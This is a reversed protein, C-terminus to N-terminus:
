AEQFFREMLGVPWRCARRSERDVCAATMQCASIKRGQAGQLQGTILCDSEGWEAVHSAIEFTEDAHVPRHFEFSLKRTVIIVPLKSLAALDLGLAERLGTFRHDIFAEIYRATTMHGFADLDQFSARHQTRFIIPTRAM